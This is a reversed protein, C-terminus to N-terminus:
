LNLIAIGDPGDFVEVSSACVGFSGDSNIPCSSVTNGNLNTVYAFTGASNITIATPFNFSNNGTLICPNLTGNTNISCYYVDTSTAVYAFTNGPNIAVAYPLSPSENSICASLSGDTNIFCSSISNIGANVIYTFTGKPNVAIGLPAYFDGGTPNCSSIDLVGNSKIPCSVVFGYNTLTIFAYTSAPNIAIGSPSPFNDSICEAFSGDDKIPCSSITNSQDAIYAFQNVPNIAITTLPAFANKAVTCSGFNGNNQIPCSSVTYNYFNTVYAVSSTSQKNSINLPYQTGACTTGGPFCVFLHHHPNKDNSDIAGTISLQLTCSDGAHGKGALNFISGCTDGYTGNSTVQTTNLPLYKLYNNNRQALTNNSVTYYAFIKQGTKIQTPLSIGSKPVINFPLALSEPSILLTSLSLLVYIINKIFSLVDKNM